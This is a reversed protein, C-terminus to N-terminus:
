KQFWKMQQSPVPGLVLHDNTVNKQLTGSKVLNIKGTSEGKILYGGQEPRSSTRADGKAAVAADAAEQTFQTTQGNPKEPTYTNARIGSLATSGPYTDRGGPDTNLIPNNSAYGYRGFSAPQANTPSM